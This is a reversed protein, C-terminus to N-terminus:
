SWAKTQSVWKSGNRRQHGITLRSVSRASPIAASAPAIMTSGCPTAKAVSAPMGGCYPKYAAMTGAITAANNPELQCRTDPGVLTIEIKRKALRLTRASGDLESYTLSASVMAKRTPTICSAMPRARMPASTFKIDCVTTILKVAPAAHRIKAAWSLFKKPMSIGRPRDKRSVTPVNMAFNRSRFKYTVLTPATVSM